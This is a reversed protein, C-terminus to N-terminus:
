LIIERLACACAFLAAFTRNKKQNRLYFVRITVHMSCFLLLECFLYPAMSVKDMIVM